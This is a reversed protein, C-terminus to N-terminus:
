NRTVVNVSSSRLSFVETIETLKFNEIHPM